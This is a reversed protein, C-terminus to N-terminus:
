ECPVFVVPLLFFHTGIRQWKVHVDSHNHDTSELKSTIYIEGESVYGGPIVGDEFNRVYGM